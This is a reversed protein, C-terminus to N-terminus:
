TCEYYRTAAVTYRSWYSYQYRYLHVRYWIFDYMNTWTGSTQYLVPVKTQEPSRYQVQLEYYELATGKM